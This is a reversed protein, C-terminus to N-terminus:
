HNGRIIAMAQNISLGQDFNVYFRKHTPIRKEKPPEQMYNGYVYTLYEDYGVPMKITVDEFEM